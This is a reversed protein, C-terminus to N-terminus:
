SRGWLLQFRTWVDNANRQMRTEGVYAEIKNDDIIIFLSGGGLQSVISQNIYEFWACADYLEAINKADSISVLYDYTGAGLTLNVRHHEMFDDSYIIVRGPSYIQKNWIFATGSYCVSRYHGSEHNNTAGSITTEFERYCVMGKEDVVRLFDYVTHGYFLPNIDAYETRYVGKEVVYDPHFEKLLEVAQNFRAAENQRVDKMGRKGKMLLLATFIILLGAILIFFVDQM